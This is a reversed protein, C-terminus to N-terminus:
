SFGSAFVGAAVLLYWGMKVNAGTSGAVVSKASGTPTSAPTPLVNGATPLATTAGNSMTYQDSELNGHGGNNDRFDLTKPNVCLLYSDALFCMESDECALPVSRRSINAHSLSAERRALPGPHRKAKAPRSAAVASSGINSMFGNSASMGGTAPAVSSSGTSLSGSSGRNAGASSSSSSGGTAAQFSEPSLATGANCPRSAVASQLGLFLILTTKLFTMSPQHTNRSDKLSHVQHM